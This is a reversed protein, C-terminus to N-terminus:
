DLKQALELPTPNYYRKLHRLSKHGTVASLEVINSLKKSLRTAAEHENEVTQKAFSQAKL